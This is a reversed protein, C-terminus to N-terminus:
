RKILGALQPAIKEVTRGMVYGGLGIQVLEWAAIFEAESMNPAAFGFWRAVILGTFTLMVIPRWNSTLWSESKVEAEIIKAAASEIEAQKSMLAMSIETEAKRAEEPDPFLRRITDGIIPTLTPLIAAFIPLM